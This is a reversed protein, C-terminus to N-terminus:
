LDWAVVLEQARLQTYNQIGGCGCDSHQLAQMQLCFLEDQLATIARKQAVNREAEEHECTHLNGHCESWLM